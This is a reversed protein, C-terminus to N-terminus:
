YQYSYSALKKRYNSDRLRDRMDDMEKITDIPKPLVDEVSEEVNSSSTVIQRLLSMQEKQNEIIDTLKMLVNLQFGTLFNIIIILSIVKVSECASFLGLIGVRFLIIFIQIQWIGVTIFYKTIFIPFTSFFNLVNSYLQLIYIMYLKDLVVIYRSLDKQAIWM